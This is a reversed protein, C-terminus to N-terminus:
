RPRAVVLLDLSEDVDHVDAALVAFDATRVSSVAQALRDTWQAPAAALQADVFSGGHEADLARLREGAHLGHVADIAFGCDTLLTVLEAATFERTHFPNVPEDLGPSFTLRNPTTVLLRGGPRLVRHCERVFEPHNWVHEIVQLTALLEVSSSRVPLAALNGRVFRAQPYTAAAHTATPADYDVGVVRAAVGALLATGYGEGCGVELVTRGAALRLAFEYAAEHRRFWYNEAPVGPVTREGTLPLTPRAIPSPRATDPAPV